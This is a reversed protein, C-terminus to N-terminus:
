RRGTPLPRLDVPMRPLPIRSMLRLARERSRVAAHDVHVTWPLLAVLNRWLELDRHAKALETYLESEIM